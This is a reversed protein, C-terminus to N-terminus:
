RREDDQFELDESEEAADLKEKSLALSVLRELRERQQKSAARYMEILMKQFNTM